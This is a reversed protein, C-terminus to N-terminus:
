KSFEVSVGFEDKLIEKDVKVIINDDGILMHAAYGLAFLFVACGFLLFPLYGSYKKVFDVILKM